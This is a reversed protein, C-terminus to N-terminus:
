SRGYMVCGSRTRDGDRWTIVYWADAQSRMPECVRTGVALDHGEPQSSSRKAGKRQKGSDNVWRTRSLASSLLYDSHHITGRHPARCCTSQHRGDFDVCLMRGEEAFMGENRWERPRVLLLHPGLHLMESSRPRGERPPAVVSRWPRLDRTCLSRGSSGVPVSRRMATRSAPHLRAVTTRRIRQGTSAGIQDLPHPGSWTMSDDDSLRNDSCPLPAGYTRQVRLQLRITAVFIRRAVFNTRALAPGAAGPHPASNGRPHYSSPGHTM